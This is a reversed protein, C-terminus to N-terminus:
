GASGICRYDVRLGGVRGDEKVGFCHRHQAGARAGGSRDVSPRAIAFLAHSDVAEIKGRGEAGPRYSETVKFLESHEGGQLASKLIALAHGRAAVYGALDFSGHEDSPM